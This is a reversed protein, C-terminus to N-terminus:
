LQQATGGVPAVFYAPIDAKKANKMIFSILQSTLKSVNFYYDTELLREGNDDLLLKSTNQIKGYYLKRYAPRENQWVYDPECDYCDDIQKVVLKPSTANPSKRLNVGNTNIEVINFNQPLSVSFNLQAFSPAACIALALTSFLKKM